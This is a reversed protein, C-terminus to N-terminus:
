NAHHRTLERVLHLRWAWVVGIILPAGIGAWAPFGIVLFDYIGHLAAAVALAALGAPLVPKGACQARSCAYGWISAFMVHVLPSAISRGLAEWPAMWALYHVNEYAAFGLAVFSAYIIGDIPEDFHHHRIGIFWFPLFKVAEEIVGIAFIAYFLLGTLDERALLFPDERLGLLDLARYARSGLWAGAIGLGFSLLLYAGPEPAHRDKYYHYAGWFLAPAAIMAALAASQASLVSM